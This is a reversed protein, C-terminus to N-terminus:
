QGLAKELGQTTTYYKALMASVEWDPMNGERLYHLYKKVVLSFQQEPDVKLNDPIMVEWGEISKKVTLGPYNKHIINMGQAM